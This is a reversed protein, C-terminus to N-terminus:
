TGAAAAVNAHDTEMPSPTFDVEGAILAETRAIVLFDPDTRATVAARIKGAHEEISVLDRKVGVYFSCRKPFNNDEICVAAIGAREYEQVTRKVNVANGYGNDCDAIVPIRVASAMRAAAELNESMTLINADPVAQVASIGFGGIETDGMHCFFQLKLWALPAFTLTLPRDFSRRRPAIPNM